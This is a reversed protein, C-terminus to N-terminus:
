AIEATKIIKQCEMSLICVQNVSFVNTLDRLSVFYDNAAAMIANPDM